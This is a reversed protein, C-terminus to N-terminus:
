NQLLNSGIIQKQQDTRHYFSNLKEKWTDLEGAFTQVAKKLTRNFCEVETNQQPTYIATCCHSIGRNPLFNVFEYSDFQPGKDSVIQNPDSFMSFIEDLWHVIKGFTINNTIYVLRTWPYNSNSTKMSRYIKFGSSGYWNCSKTM